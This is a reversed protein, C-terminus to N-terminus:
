EVWHLVDRIISWRPGHQEATRGLIWHDYARRITGDGKKLVIWDNMFEALVQDRGAIPFHVPWRTVAGPLLVVTFKPHILTWASGSEASTILADLNDRSGDFFEAASGLPVIEAGPLMEGIKRLMYPDVFAAIRLDDRERIEKATDFEHRRHDLVVLAPTVETYPDTFLMAQYRTVSGAMGGMALDFHDAELASALLEPRFPVFEISAGLDRALRHALEIDFGVLEGAANVYGFPLHDLEVGIRIVGRRRIRDLRSEGERLPEPNPGADDLMVAPAAHELLQMEALVQDKRYANKMTQGLYLRVGVVVVALIAATIALDRAIRWGRISAFGAVMSTTLLTFALLHMAGVLAGFRGCFVGAILFLNFLDSPLHMVDLLFPMALSVAGFYSLLGAAIFTPFQGFTLGSGSFWAAFPIFLLTLLKGIGPFTFAVPLLVDITAEAREDRGRHREILAKANRILLPLVVFTSGTAFATLLAARSTRRIEGRGVPTLSAVLSPLLWFTLVLASAVFVILYGQLRGIEQTTMTGAAAAAIAFVGLPTLNIVFVNVRSLADALVACLNILPSKNPMGILAVGIAISFLVVGPILSNAMAFFPNAPLYMRLYDVRATPEILSTSFFSATEFDPFALPMVVVIVVAIAWFFLLVAGARGAIRWAQEATLGGIHTILSVIIYPLVTMQLLMVFGDGVPKLHRCSEGFFLGAAIGAILGILILSSLSPRKM